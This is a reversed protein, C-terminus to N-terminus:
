HVSRYWLNNLAKIMTLIMNEHGMSLRYQFRFKRVVKYLKSNLWHCLWLSLNYRFGGESSSQICNSPRLSLLFCIPFCVFYALYVNNYSFIMFHLVFFIVMSFNVLSFFKLDILAAMEGLQIVEEASLIVIKWFICFISRSIFPVFFSWQFRKVIVSAKRSWFLTFTITHLCCRVPLCGSRWHPVYIKYSCAQQPHKLLILILM